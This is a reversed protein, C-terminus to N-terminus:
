PLAPPYLVRRCPSTSRPPVPQRVLSGPGMLFVTTRHPYIIRRCPSIAVAAHAPLVKPKGLWNILDVLPNITISRLAPLCFAAARAPLCHCGSLVPRRPSTISPLVPGYSLFRFVWAVQGPRLRPPIRRLPLARGARGGQRRRLGDARQAARGSPKHALRREVPAGGGGHARANFAQGFRPSGLGRRAPACGDSDEGHLRADVAAFSLPPPKESAQRGTASGETGQPCEHVAGCRSPRAHNRSAAAIETEVPPGVARSM